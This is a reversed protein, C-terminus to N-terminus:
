GTRRDPPRRRPRRRAPARRSSACRRSRSPTSPNRQLILKPQLTRMIPQVSELDADSSLAFLASTGPVVQERIQKVSRTTSRRGSPGAGCPVWGWASRSVPSPFWSSRASSSASSAGRGCRGERRPAATSARPTEQRRVVWSVAAADHLTIKNQEALTKLSEQATEAGTVNEFTWATLTAM